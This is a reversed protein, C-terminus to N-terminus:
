FANKVVSGFFIQEPDLFKENLTFFFKHFYYVKLFIGSINGQVLLICHECGQWFFKALFAFSNREFHSFFKYFCFKKWFRKMGFQEVCCILQLKSSNVPFIEWLKNKPHPAIVKQYNGKRNFSSFRAWKPWISWLQCIMSQKNGGKPSWVAWFICM